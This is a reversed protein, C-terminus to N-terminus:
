SPAQLLTKLRWRKLANKLTKCISAKSLQYKRTREDLSM